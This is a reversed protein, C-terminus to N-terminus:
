KKVTFSALYYFPSGKIHKGRLRASVEFEGPHGEWSVTYTGDQNDTVDFDVPKGDPGKVQVKINDGGTKKPQGNRHFTQVKVSCQIIHKFELASYKTSAVLLPLHFIRLFIM